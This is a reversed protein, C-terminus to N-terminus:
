FDPYLNLRDFTAEDMDSLKSLVTDVLTCLEVEDEGLQEKVQRLAECLGPLTGPSYLMMLNREDQTFNRM